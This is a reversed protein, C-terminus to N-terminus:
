VDICYKNEKIKHRLHTHSGITPINCRNTPEKFRKSEAINKKIVAEFWRKPTVFIIDINAMCYLLFM